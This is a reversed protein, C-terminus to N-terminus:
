LLRSWGYHWLRLMLCWPKVRIKCLLLWYFLKKDHVIMCYSFYLLEFMILMEKKKDCEVGLRFSCFYVYMSNYMWSDPTLESESASVLTFGDVSCSDTMIICCNCEVESATNRRGHESSVNKQQCFLISSFYDWFQHM